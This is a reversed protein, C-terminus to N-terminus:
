VYNGGAGFLGEPLFIDERPVKEWRFIGALEEPSIPEPRDLQGALWALRGVIEEARYRERLVELSVDGDRKSLRRGDAALLLPVHCFVPEPLGLLRYLYLQRATSSLLDRGRVVETVGMAGDDAAVALQYAFVGDSRRLIFDGCEAALDQVQPGYHLDTFGITGQVKLRLAPPRSKSKEEIELPSLDRCTGPYIPDGDSTHPANPAHLEARSCFCPYVLGMERLKELCIEYYDGRRSQWYPGAPGGKTGGEEWDLGLFTLDEELQAAFAPSTRQTDLDEQRLIIRGGQSRVSLWALLCSFLNGLHMRGSPTPAFRGVIEGM